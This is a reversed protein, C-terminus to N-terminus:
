ARVEVIRGKFIELAKQILPDNKFEEAGLTFPGAKDHKASPSPAAASPTPGSPASSRDPTPTASSPAAQVSRNWGEPAEAKIIKIQTGPHGLEGLKTQLIAHTKGNNVLDIHEAFEPDFGITFVNKEL